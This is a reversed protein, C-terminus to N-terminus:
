GRRYAVANDINFGDWGLAELLELSMGDVDYEIGDYAAHFEEPYQAVVDLWEVLSRVQAYGPGAYQGLAWKILNQEGVFCTFEKPDNEAMDAYYERASKGAEERSLFVAWTESEDTEIEFGRNDIPYVREVKMKKTYGITFHM